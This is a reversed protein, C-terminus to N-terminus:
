GVRVESMAEYMKRIDALSAWKLIEMGDSVYEPHRM